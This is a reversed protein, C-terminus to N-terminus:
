CPSIGFVFVSVTSAAPNVFVAGSTAVIARIHVEVVPKNM